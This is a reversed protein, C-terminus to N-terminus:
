ERVPPPRRRATRGRLDFIFDLLALVTLAIVPWHLVRLVAFVPLATYLAALIGGRGVIGRTLMHVVALGMATHAIMLAASVMGAALGLMGGAFSGILTAILLAPAAQPLRLAPLDPWPRRLRGSINLVRGALWLNLLNTVTGLAAAAPPMVEVLFDIFRAPDPVGPIAPREAAAGGSPVGLATEFLGRLTAQFTEQDWGFVPILALVNLAGLLASWFVLSGAPYWEVGGGTPDPRALLTLYGLWWAPLGVGVIFPLISSPSMGQGFVAALGIAATAVGFLGAWHSWGIAAILIPLPALILLLLALSSGSAPSAFLLASAAGAGIGILGNQVMM